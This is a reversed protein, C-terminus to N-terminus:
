CMRKRRLVYIVLFCFLVVVPPGDTLLERTGLWGDFSQLYYPMIYTFFASASFVFAFLVAIKNKRSRHETLLPAALAVIWLVYWPYFWPTVILVGEFVILAAFVMSRTTPVCWLLVGGISLTGILLIANIRDWMIRHSLSYVPRYLLSTHPPLGYLKVWEVFVRMISNEAFYSSPALSFSRVIASVSHGIWFPAYFLLVTLGCLVSAISAHLLMHRGRLVGPQEHTEMLTRRMLLFIFLIVLPANTFKILIAMTFALLPPAYGSIRTFNKREARLSLWIGLLIFTIMCADNHADLCSELLVLPNCGYLLIALAVTRQSQGMARLIAIILVINLGHTLLGFVRFAFIYHVPVDGLFLSFLSCIYLWLPGYTNIVANWRDLQTLPDPWSSQLPPVFYPNSHHVLITRGYDAYTFLDFSPLAPTFIFILATVGIGVVLIFCIFTYNAEQAVKYWIIWACLGYLIYALAILLLFEGNGTTVRSKQIDQLMHFDSPLWAGIRTLMNSIPVQSLLSTGAMRQLPAVCIAICLVFAFICLSIVWFWATNNTTRVEDDIYPLM